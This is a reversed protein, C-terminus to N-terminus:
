LVMRLHRAHEEDSNSYVLTKDIFVVVFEELYPHFIINMYEMFVYQANSVDFLMVSYKYRGYRTRFATKLIDEVKM